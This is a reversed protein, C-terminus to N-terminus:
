GDSVGKRPALGERIVDDMVRELQVQSRRARLEAMIAEGEIMSRSVADELMEAGSQRRAEGFLDRWSFGTAM